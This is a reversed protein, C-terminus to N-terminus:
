VEGGGAQGANGLLGAKEGYGVKEAVEGRRVIEEREKAEREEEREIIAMVREHPNGSGGGHGSVYGSASTAVRMKPKKPEPPPESGGIMPYPNEASWGLLLPRFGSDTLSTFMEHVLNAKWLPYNRVGQAGAHTYWILRLNGPELDPRHTYSIWGMRILGDLHYTQYTSMKNEEPSPKIHRNDFLIIMQGPDYAGATRPDFNELTNAM